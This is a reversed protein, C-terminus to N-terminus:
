PRGILGGVRLPPLKSRTDGAGRNAFGVGATGHGSGASLGPLTAAVGGGCSLPDVRMKWGLRV